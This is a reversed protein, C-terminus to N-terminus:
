LDGGEAKPVDVASRVGGEGGAEAEGEGPFVDIFKDDDKRMVNITFRVESEM